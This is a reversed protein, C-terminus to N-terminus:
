FDDFSYESSKRSKIIPESNNLNPQKCCCVKLYSEYLASKVQKTYGYALAYLIGNLATFILHIASMVPIDEKLVTKFFRNLTGPTMCIIQIVPYKM